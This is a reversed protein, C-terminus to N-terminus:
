DGFQIVKTLELESLVHLEQLQHFVEVQCDLKTLIKMLLTWNKGLNRESPIFDPLTQAQNVSTFYLCLFLCFRLFIGTHVNM